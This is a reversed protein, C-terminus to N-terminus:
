VQRCPPERRLIPDVRNAGDFAELGIRALAFGAQRRRLDGQQPQPDRAVGAAPRDGVDGGTVAAAVAEAGPQRDGDGLPQVKAVQLDPAIPRDPADRVRLFEPSQRREVRQGLRDARREHDIVHGGAAIM